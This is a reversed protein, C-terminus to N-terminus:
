PNYVRQGVLGKIWEWGSPYSLSDASVEQTIANDFSYMLPTGSFIWNRISNGGTMVWDGARLGQMGQPGWHTVTQLGGRTVLGEPVLAGALGGAIAWEGVEWFNVCGIHGHYKWLQYGLDVLGGIAAGIAVNVWEGNPDNYNIPNGDVYAYFNTGAALGLPDGSIFRGM